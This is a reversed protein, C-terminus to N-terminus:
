NDFFRLRGQFEVQWSPAEPLRGLCFLLLSGTSIDGITPPSSESKYITPLKNLKIYDNITFPQTPDQLMPAGFSTGNWTYTTMNFYYRRLIVFRERNNLNIDSTSLTTGAGTSNVSQLIDGNVPLLGNTQKDYVIMVTIWDEELGSSADEDTNPVIRLKLNLSKMLIKRGIRNWFGAGTTTANFCYMTTATSGVSSLVVNTVVPSDVSKIEPYNKKSGFGPRKSARAKKRSDQRIVLTANQGRQKKTEKPLRVRISSHSAM